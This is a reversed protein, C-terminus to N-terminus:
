NTRRRFRWGALGLAAALLALTSPEPTVVVTYDVQALNDFDTFTGNDPGGEIVYTGQYTGPAIDPGATIDILDIDGSNANPSLDLPANEFFDDTLDDAPLGVTDSFANLYVAPDSSDTDNNSIIGTFSITGGPAVYQIPTDFNLSIDEVSQAHAGGVVLLSFLASQITKKM